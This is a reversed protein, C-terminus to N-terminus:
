TKPDAWVPRPTPGSAPAPANRYAGGLTAAYVGAENRNSLGLKRLINSVHHEATKPSIVLTQAIDPNTAGEALLRLVQRERDTLPTNAGPETPAISDGLEHLLAQADHMRAAGADTYIALARRAEALAAVRDTTKLLSALELELDAAILPWETDRLEHLGQEAHTIAATLAGTAASTRAASLAALARVHARDASLAAQALTDAAEQALVLEGRALEAQVLCALLPASRLIDGVLNRAARRAVAAALAHDGRALHLRALPLQADTSDTYGDLVSAAEALRGQSVRLDALAAHARARPRFHVSESAWIARRLAADAERWRGSGCLLSGYEGQCHALLLSPPADSAFVGPTSAQLATLLSDMRTLDGSRECASVICCCVQAAIFANACEGSEAMTMAEDLLSMGEATRGHNLLALGLDGLAKCELDVEAFEEALKLADRAALELRDTDDFGCGTRGLAVWGQEVCRPEGALLRQARASWGNAASVRGTGDYELRGLHAASVAARRRNGTRQFYLFATRLHGRAAPFDAFLYDILGAALHADASEQRQLEGALRERATPIEAATLSVGVSVDIRV